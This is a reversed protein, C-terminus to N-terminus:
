LLLTTKPNSRVASCVEDAAQAAAEAVMKSPDEMARQARQPPAPKRKLAFTGALGAILAALLSAGATALAALPATLYGRMWGYFALALFLLMIFSLAGIFALAVLGIVGRKVMEAKRSM